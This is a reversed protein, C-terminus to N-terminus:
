CIFRGAWELQYLICVRPHPLGDDAPTISTDGEAEENVRVTTAEPATPPEASSLHAAPADDIQKKKRNSPTVLQQPEEYVM